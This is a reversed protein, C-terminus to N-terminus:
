YTPENEGAEPDHEGLGDDNKKDDIPDPMVPEFIDLADLFFNVGSTTLNFVAQGSLPGRLQRVILTSVVVQPIDELITEMLHLFKTPVLGCVSRRGACKQIGMLNMIINILGVISSVLAIALVVYEWISKEGSLQQDTLRLVYEYFFWDGTIDAVSSVISRVRRTWHIRVM